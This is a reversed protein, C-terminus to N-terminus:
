DKRAYEDKRKRTSCHNRYEFLEKLRNIDDYTINDFYVGKKTRIVKIHSFEARSFYLMLTQYKRNVLRELAKVKYKM